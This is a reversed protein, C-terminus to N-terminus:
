GGLYKKDYKEIVEHGVLDHMYSYIKEYQEEKEDKIVIKEKLEERIKNIWTELKDIDIKNEAMQKYFDQMSYNLLEQNLQEIERPIHIRRDEIKELKMNIENIYNKSKDMESIAKNNEEECAEKMNEMIDSMMKKKLLSYEKYENNLKGQEKLLQNIKRELDNIRRSKKTDKYLEHWRNDLTLIHVKKEVDIPTDSKKFLM